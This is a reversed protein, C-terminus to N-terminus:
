TSTAPPIPPQHPRPRTFRKDYQDALYYLNALTLNNTFTATEVGFTADYAALYEKRHPPPQLTPNWKFHNPSGSEPHVGYKASFQNTPAGTQDDFTGFFVSLFESTGWVPLVAGPNQPDPKVGVFASRTTLEYEFEENLAIVNGQADREHWLFSASV